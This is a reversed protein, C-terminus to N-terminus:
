IMLKPSIMIRHMSETVNASWAEEAESLRTTLAMQEVVNMLPSCRSADPVVSGDNKM